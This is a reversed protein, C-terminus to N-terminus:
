LVRQSALQQRSDQASESPAPDMDAPPFIGVDTAVNDSGGFVRGEIRSNMRVMTRVAHVTRPSKAGLEHFQREAASSWVAMQELELYAKALVMFTYTMPRNYRTASERIRKLRSMRPSASGTKNMDQENTGANGDSVADRAEPSESPVRGQTQPLSSSLPQQAQQKRGSPSGDGDGRLRHLARLPAFGSWQGMLQEECVAFAERTRGLRALHQVYHNWNKNDLLFGNALADNNVLNMLGEPDRQAAYLRQMTKLPDTLGYRLGAVVPRDEKSEQRAAPAAPMGTAVHDGKAHGLISELRTTEFTQPRSVEQTRALINQWMEKVRDFRGEYYDSLMLANCLKLPLPQQHEDAPAISKYLQMVEEVGAFDRAQLLMFLVFSFRRVAGLHMRAADRGVAEKARSPMSADRRDQVHLSRQFERLAKAFLDRRETASLGGEAPADGKPFDQWQSFAKIVMQVQQSSRQFGMHHMLRNVQLARHPQKSRIYAMMLLTYHHAEPRFIGDEQATRLLEVARRPQRCQALAFLLASYTNGDYKVHLRTMVNLIRNVAVLDHRLAHHHLLTNWLATYPKSGVTGDRTTTVCLREADDYRENQCYAEVIPDIIAETIKVGCQQALWYLDSVLELDGRGGVISMITSFSYDDPAVAECLDEFIQMAKAYDGREVYVHLRINWCIINPKVNYKDSTEAFVQEVQALDGRVAHVKLLHAFTDQASAIATPYVTTFEDWLRYVSTVDGRSAYFALYKQYGWFSLRGKANYWDKLVEEMGRANHPYYVHRVMDALTSTHPRFKPMVRYEAYAQAALDFRKNNILVQIFNELVRPNTLSRVLPLAADPDLRNLSAELIAKFAEKLSELDLREAPDTNHEALELAALQEPSESLEPQEPKQTKQAAMDIFEAFMQMKDQLGLLEVVATLLPEEAKVRGTKKKYVSWAASIADWSLTKLANAILLDLGPAAGDAWAGTTTSRQFIALAETRNRLRLQTNIAAAVTAADWQSPDITEFLRLVRHAETPRKSPTLFQLAARNVATKQPGDDLRSYLDWVREFADHDTATPRLQLLQTLDVLVAGQDERPARALGGVDSRFLDAARHSAYDAAATPHSQVQAGDSVAASSSLLSRFHRIPAPKRPSNATQTPNTTSTPATTSSDARGRRDTARSLRRVFTLTGKPYLFDLLFASANLPEVQSLEPTYMDFYGDRPDSGHMGRQSLLAQLTGPSTGSAKSVNPLLRQLGAPELGAATRDLLPM